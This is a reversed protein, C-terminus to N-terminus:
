WGNARYWDVTARFGEVLGIAARFGLRREAREVSCAFGESRAERLRAFDLGAFVVRGRVRTEVTGALASLWALAFPVPLPRYPRDCVRALEKLMAELTIPDGSGIYLTEGEAAPSSAALEIARAVDQVHILDLVFSAANSPRPFVGLRALRFLPLLRRDRPGYVATPRLIAWSLGNTQRVVREGALKSEAYPTIPAPMDAETRPRGAPAPGGATQSSVHVLRAGSARTAEAVARTYDVNVRQFDAARRAQTLGALHVITSIGELVDALRPSELSISAEEVGAPIGRRGGPRVIARVTWGADRFRECVHWGIFGTAGTVAVLRTVVLV